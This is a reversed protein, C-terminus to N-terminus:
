PAIYPIWSYWERINLYDAWADILEKDHIPADPIEGLIELLRKGHKDFGMSRYPRVLNPKELREGWFIAHAANIYHTPQFIGKPMMDRIRPALSDVGVALEKDAHKRELDRLQPYNRGLWNVVRLGVPVSRLHTILGGLLQDRFPELQSKSLGFKQALGGPATSCIM